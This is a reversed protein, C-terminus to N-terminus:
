NDVYEMIAIEAEVLSGFAGFPGPLLGMGALLGKPDGCVKVIAFGNIISVTQAAILVTGSVPASAGGTGVTAFFAGISAADAAVTIYVNGHECYLDKIEQGCDSGIGEPVMSDRMQTGMNTLARHEWGSPYTNHFIEIQANRVEIPMRFFDNPKFKDSYAEFFGPPIPL